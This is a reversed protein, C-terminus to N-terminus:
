FASILLLIVLLLLLLIVLLSWAPEHDWQAACVGHRSEMFRLAPRRCPAIFLPFQGHRLGASWDAEM